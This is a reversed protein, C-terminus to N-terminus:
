EALQFYDTMLRGCEAADHSSLIRSLLYRRYMARIRQKLYKM